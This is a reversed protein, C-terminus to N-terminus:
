ELGYAGAPAIQVGGVMGLRNRPLFRPEIAFNVGVNGRSHDANFGIRVLASEGIRTLALFQGINGTAGFDVSTGGTMIWKESMRYSVSGTFINSSIPGEITRFGLYLQGREPRTVVGGVTFTRLGDGFLDAFGDSLFTLRDGLHWRFDYNLLGLEQGFNDRDAKPFYSGELELVIWDIIRERGPPGRKTQWRQRLGMKLLMLDDAIETSAATVHSQMGSRLAFYREDFRRPVNGGPMGGFTDFFFRRRFFEVADDDLQEYLPYRDLDQNADAWLFESDWEVKHALGNLNLLENHVSHDARWWSVSTRAGLQGYARTRQQGSLDQGVRFLEGLAYPVVKVPGVQLPLDIEHRTSAHLGEREAEWALPDFKAAAPSLLTPPNAVRLQAYGVHSHAHWTLRNHLISQGLLYHDFRPLWETQTFFDNLRAQGLISWSSSGLRRKLELNTTQDKDQDWESEFFQELFNRDSILGFEGTFQYGGPLDQRHQWRVRGRFNKEPIVARRDLGLNDTGNDQLGWADLTGRYPGSFRFLETGEYRYNTGGGFGRQSLWDTSVTWDSGPAFDKSLGLLQFVDWDLLVQTGFVSDNALRVRDVYYTPKLLDTALVPWYFIPVGGVYVLNNSSRALLQHNTFDATPQGTFPDAQPQQIDRLTINEAQVWYRPVGLRSSTIAAGYALFNERDLQHLVDAKLRMLGEYDQVPTLAEANLIIGQSRNLDYYMRDAYIVRDGERFVVNGELYFEWRDNVQRPSFVPGAENSDTWVLVRDSEITVTGTEVGPVNEIGGVTIRVGSSMVLITETPDPSALSEFKTGLSGRPTISLTRATPRGEAFTSPFPPATFQAPQVRQDVEHAEWRRAERGRRVVPLLNPPHDATTPFRLEVNISTHFRGLWHRAALAPRVEGFRVDVDKELYAIIKTPVGENADGRDIWLVADRARARVEGQRIEVDGHLLWVDYQGEQWHGSREASVVIPTDLPASPLQVEVASVVSGAAILMWFLVVARVGAARASPEFDACWRGVLHWAFQM